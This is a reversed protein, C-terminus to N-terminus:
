GVAVAARSEMAASLLDLQIRALKVLTEVQAKSQIEWQVWRVGDVQKAHTIADRMPKLLRRLPLASVGENTLPVILLPQQPQPVLYVWARGSIAEHKFLVSWRWPVGQWSVQEGVGGISLLHERLLEVAPHVSKAVESVLVEASPKRFRDNWASRAVMGSSM